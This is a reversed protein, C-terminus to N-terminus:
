LIASNWICIQMLILKYSLVGIQEHQVLACFLLLLFEAKSDNSMYWAGILCWNVICSERHSRHHSLVDPINHFDSINCENNLTCLYRQSSTVLTVGLLTSVDGKHYSQNFWLYWLFRTDSYKQLCCRLKPHKHICSLVNTTKAVTVEMIRHRCHTFVTIAFYCSMM